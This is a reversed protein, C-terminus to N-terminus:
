AARAWRDAGRAGKDARCPAVWARRAPATASLGSGGAAVSAGRRRGEGEKV